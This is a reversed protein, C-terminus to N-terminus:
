DTLAFASGDGGVFLSLVLLLLARLKPTMWVTSYASDCCMSFCAYELEAPSCKGAPAGDFLDVRYVPTEILGSRAVQRLATNKLSDPLFRGRSKKGAKADNGPRDLRIKSDYSYDVGTMPLRGPPKVDLLSSAACFSFSTNASRYLYCCTQWKSHSNLFVQVCKDDDYQVRMLTKFSIWLASDRAGMSDLASAKNRLIKELLSIRRATGV